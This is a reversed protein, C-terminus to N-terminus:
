KLECNKGALEVDVYDALNKFAIVTSGQRHIEEMYIEFLEPQTTVWPHALDPVGHITMVVIKGGKAQHIANLVRTTDTGDLRFSPVLYPHDSEPDYPREGGVRAFTYQKEALMEFAAPSTDYAPYALTVPRPIGFKACKKEIYEVEDVIEPKEIRNFHKHTRGHNAIEFGMDNLQKVQEWTMYKEKDTEFDPPFECIFFTAGFGHKKLLTGCFTAHNSIADDFTLVVIGEEPISKRLIQKSNCSFLFFLFFLGSIARIASIKTKSNLLKM